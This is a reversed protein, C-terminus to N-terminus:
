PNQFCFPFYIFFHVYLVLSHCSLSCYGQTLREPSSICIAAESDNSCPRSPSYCSYWAANALKASSQWTHSFDMLANNQTSAEKPPLFNLAAKGHETEKPLFIIYLRGRSLHVPLDLLQQRAAFSAPALTSGGGIHSWSGWKGMERDGWM